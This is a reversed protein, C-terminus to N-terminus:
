AAPRDSQNERKLSWTPKVPGASSKTCPYTVSRCPKSARYSRRLSALARREGRTLTRFIDDRRCRFSRHRLHWPSRLPFGARAEAHRLAAVGDLRKLAPAPQGAGATTCDSRTPTRTSEPRSKFRCERARHAQSMSSRPRCHELELIGGDVIWTLSSASARVTEIAADKSHGTVLYTAALKEVPGRCRDAVDIELVVSEPADRDRGLSFVASFHHDFCSGTLLACIGRAPDSALEHPVLEQYVPNGIRRGGIAPRGTGSHQSGSGAVAEARSRGRARMEGSGCLTCWALGRPQIRRCYGARVDDATDSGPSEFRFDTRNEGPRSM